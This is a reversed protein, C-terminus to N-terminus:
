EWEINIEVKSQAPKLAIILDNIVQVL